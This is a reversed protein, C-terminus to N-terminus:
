NRNKKTLGESRESKINHVDSLHRTATSTYKDPCSFNRSNDVCDQSVLCYWRSAKSPDYSIVRVGSSYIISQLGSSKIKDFKEYDQPPVFSDIRDKITYM